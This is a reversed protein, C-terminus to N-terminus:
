APFGKINALVWFAQLVGKSNRLSTIVTRRVHGSKEKGETCSAAESKEDFEGEVSGAARNARVKASNLGTCVDTKTGFITKCTVAWGPLKGAILSTIRDRVEEGTEELKTAWPLNRAEAKPETSEECGGLKVFKCKTATIRTTSDTGGAGITGLNTGSCEVSSAGAITESDELELTGSSTVEVTETVAKTEWEGKGAKTCQADLWKGNNPGVNVCTVWIPAAMASSAMVAMLGAVAVLGFAIKLHKM